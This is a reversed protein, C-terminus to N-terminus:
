GVKGRRVRKRERKEEEDDESERREDDDRKERRKLRGSRCRGVSSNGETRKEYWGVM